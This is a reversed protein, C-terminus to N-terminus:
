CAGLYQSGVTFRLLKKADVSPGFREEALDWSEMKFFPLISNQVNSLLKMKDAEKKLDKLIMEGAIVQFPLLYYKSFFM